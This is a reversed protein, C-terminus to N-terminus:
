IALFGDIRIRRLVIRKQLLDGLAAPEQIRHQYIALKRVDLQWQVSLMETAIRFVKPSDTLM